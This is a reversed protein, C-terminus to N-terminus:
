RRFRQVIRRNRRATKGFVLNGSLGLEFTHYSTRIRDRQGLSALADREAYHFRYGLEVHLQQYIPISTGIGGNYGLRRDFEVTQELREDPLSRQQLTATYYGAGAKFILGIRYAPIRSINGRLFLGVYRLEYTERRVLDTPFQLDNPIDFTPHAVTQHYEVGLQAHELGGAVRAGVPVLWEAADSYPRAEYVTRGGGSFAELFLQQASARQVPFFCAGALVLLAVFSRLM